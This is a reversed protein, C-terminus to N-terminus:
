TRTHLRVGFSDLVYQECRTIHKEERQLDEVKHVEWKIVNGDISPSSSVSYFVRRVGLRQLWALCQRCPKSNALEGTKENVLRVVYLDCNRTYRRLNRGM